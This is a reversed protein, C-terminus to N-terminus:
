PEMMENTVVQRHQPIEVTIYRTRNFLKIGEGWQTIECSEKLRRSIKAKTNTIRTISIQRRLIPNIWGERLGNSGSWQTGKIMKRM